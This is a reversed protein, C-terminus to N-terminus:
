YIFNFFRQLLFAQKQKKNLFSSKSDDKIYNYIDKITDQEIPHGKKELIVEIELDLHDEEIEKEEV